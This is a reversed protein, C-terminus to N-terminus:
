RTATLLELTAFYDGNQADLQLISMLLRAGDASRWASVFVENSTDAESEKWGASALQKEFFQSVGESAHGNFQRKTQFRIRLTEGHDTKARERWVIKVDPADSLSPLSAAAMPIAFLVSALVLFFGLIRRM